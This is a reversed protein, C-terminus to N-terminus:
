RVGAQVPRAPPQVSTKPKWKVRTDLLLRDPVSIEVCGRMQTKFRKLEDVGADLVAPNNLDQVRIKAELIYASSPDLPQLSAFSPLTDRPSTELSRVGPEHLIRFLLIVVNEHVFRHGELYYESVFQNGLNLVYAHPDGGMIDTSNTLRVLVGRDGTDPIDRFEYAWKAEAGSDSATTLSSGQANSVDFDEESLQQVLQTFYLDKAAAQKINKSTVNQTGGRRLHAGPEEPERLPKYVIHRELVRRPQMAAVGALIKLVQEHRSRPIQGFLLLEHM